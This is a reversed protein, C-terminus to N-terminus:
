KPFSKLPVGARYINIWRGDRRVYLSSCTVPTPAPAGGCVADQDATYLLLAVDSNVRVMRPDRLAFSRVDCNKEASKQATLFSARDLPGYEGWAVADPAINNEFPQMQKDKWGQFFGREIALLSDLLTSEAARAQSLIVCAACLLLNRFSSRM